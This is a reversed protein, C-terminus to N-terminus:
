FGTKRGEVLLRTEHNLAASCRRRSRGSASRRSRSRVSVTRATDAGARAAWWEFLASRRQDGLTRARRAARTAWRRAVATSGAHLAAEAGWALRQLGWARRWGRPREPRVPTAVDRWVSLAAEYQRADMARVGRWARVAAGSAAMAALRRVQVAASDGSVLLRVVSPRDAVADRLMLRARLGHAYQPARAHAAGYLTRAAATAGAMARADALIGQLDITQISASLTDLQRRVAGPRGRALRVRARMEHAAPFRPQLALARDLHATMASTDRRRAAQRAAQLHQRAPPVYHPCKTEFLSPRTFQRAVVSHAGRAVAASRRLHVAWGQALTRLSQDYVRKFNGWAYVRKLKEPGYQDLLYGVFSGMTAYSVAGRGTWFGWPSLRSAVANAEGRLSATTDAAIATLVLDDPAPVASPPELAVAWGEILGPAWSANLLPLGYPRSVVHALEHGLSQSVRSRLLHMQPTELWVPTVSTTRAGTLRGKVEPSPYIYSQIRPGQEDFGLALRRRVWDYRAEHARALDAIARKGMEDSDYYLDFHETRLHGGLQEQLYWAPTNLGLPASFFYVVGIMLACLPLAWRPGRGRLRLGLLVAAAAWLLTLGRFVFLGDRVALQEDYIPGLVGGFVHNYTFFQPHLGLDYLPGAVVILGGIGTLALRPRSLSLGQLAYAVAVAFVVTVGPFLAYFLLGQLFTCNPVWLQTLTLVALPVLLAAEQRGLVRWVAVREEGFARVAAGGAVFFSVLAVVAAAEVQLVNLLPTPALLLGLGLYAGLVRRM